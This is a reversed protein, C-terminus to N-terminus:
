GVRAVPSAPVFTPSGRHRRWVAIDGYCQEPALGRALPTSETNNLPGELALLCPCKHSSCLVGAWPELAGVDPCVVGPLKKSDRVRAVFTGM